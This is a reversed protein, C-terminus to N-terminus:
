WSGDDIYFVIQFPGATLLISVILGPDMDTKGTYFQYHFRGWRLPNLCVEISLDSWKLYNWFKKM